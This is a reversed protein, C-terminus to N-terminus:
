CKSCYFYQSDQNRQGHINVTLRESYQDSEMNVTKIVRHESHQDSAINVRLVARYYLWQFKRM